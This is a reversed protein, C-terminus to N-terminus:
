KFVNLVKSACKKCIAVDDVKVVNETTGCHNCKDQAGYKKLVVMDGDVWMEVSGREGIELNRRLEIPLTIRGLDDLKRVIGTNKM